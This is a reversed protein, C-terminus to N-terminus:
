VHSLQGCMSKFCKCSPRKSALFPVPSPCPWPGHTEEAGKTLLPGGPLGDAMIAPAYLACLLCSEIEARSKKKQFLHGPYKRNLIEGDEKKGEDQRRPFALEHQVYQQM